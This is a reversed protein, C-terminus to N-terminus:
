ELHPCPILIALDFQIRRVLVLPVDEVEKVSYFIHFPFFAVGGGLTVVSSSYSSFAGFIKIFIPHRSMITGCLWAVGGIM